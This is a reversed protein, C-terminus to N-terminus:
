FHEKLAGVYELSQLNEPLLGCTAFGQLNCQCTAYQSPITSPCDTDNSCREGAKLSKGGSSCKYTGPGAWPEDAQGNSCLFLDEQEFAVLAAGGALSFYSECSGFDLTAM